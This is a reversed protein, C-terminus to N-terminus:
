GSMGAAGERGVMSVEVSGGGSTTSVMSIVAGIPFYALEEPAGSRQLVEGSKVEVTTAGLEHLADEDFVQLLANCPARRSMECNDKKERGLNYSQMCDKAVAQISVPTSAFRRLLINSLLGKGTLHRCQSATSPQGVCACVPTPKMTTLKRQREHSKSQSSVIAVVAPAGM